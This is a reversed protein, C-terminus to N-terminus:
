SENISGKKIGLLVAIKHAEGRLCKRNGRLVEYVSHRKVGNAKAWDSVAIGSDRFYDRAEELTKLKAM